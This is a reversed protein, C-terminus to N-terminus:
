ICSRVRYVRLGPAASGHGGSTLERSVRLSESADRCVAFLASGSGSMMSGCPRSQDLRRALEAVAPSLGEAVPQLRNFMGGALREVDGRSLAEVLARGDRPERPVELNRYVEATALGVPPCALVVHLPRGVALPRVKEGRGTCWGARHFFFPVDSGLEGGLAALEDRSLGLDWLWNLGALAAAADSSGGGLGAQMPIRKHLQIRTGRACGTRGRLLEAARVILNDPGSPLSPNDCHLHVAGSPQDRFTLIDYLGVALLLTELEHYGDRRRHLVELFLNVKAPAAVWVHVGSRQLLM